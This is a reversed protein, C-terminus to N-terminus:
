LPSPLKVPLVHVNWCVTLLALVLVATVEDMLGDTYPRLTVNVAVTLLLALGIVPVTVNLSPLVDSPVPRTLLPLATNVVLLRVAPVCLMVAAYLPAVFKWDHVDDGPNLWVTLRAHVVVVIVFTHWVKVNPLATVNVAVTVLLALGIVPVTVNMSPLVDSPVPTTLPPLAVNAGLLRVTPVCLMVATYPPSM